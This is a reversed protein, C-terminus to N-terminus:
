LRGRPIFAVLAVLILVLAAMPETTLPLLSLLGVPIVLLGAVLASVAAAAWPHRTTWRVAGVLLGAYVAQGIAAVFCILRIRISLLVAGTDFGHAVGSLFGQPAGPQRSGGLWLVDNSLGYVAAPLFVTAVVVAAWGVRTRIRTTLPRPLSSTM